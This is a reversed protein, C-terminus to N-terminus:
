VYEKNLLALLILHLPSDVTLPTDEELTPYGLPSELDEQGEQCDYYSLSTNPACPVLLPPHLSGSDNDDEEVSTQLNETSGTKHSWKWKQPNPSVARHGSQGTLEKLDKIVEQSNRRKSSRSSISRQPSKSGLNSPSLYPRREEERINQRMSVDERSKAKRIGQTKSGYKPPRPASM